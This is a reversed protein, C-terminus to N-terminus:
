PVKARWPETCVWPEGQRPIERVPITWLPCLTYDGALVLQMPVEVEGLKAYGSSRWIIPDVFEVIGWVVKRFQPCNMASDVASFEMIHNESSALDVVQTGDAVIVVSAFGPNVDVKFVRMSCKRVTGLYEVTTDKQPTVISVPLSLQTNNVIHLKAQPSQFLALALLLEVVM